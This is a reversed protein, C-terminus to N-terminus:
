NQVMSQSDFSQGTEYDILTIRLRSPMIDVVAFSARYGRDEPQKLHGPNLRIVGNEEKVIEPHHTHGHCFVKCQKEQLVTEPDRDDPLDNFHAEPTHTLFFRWGEFEEFRRNEILTNEYEVTWTGPIRILPYGAAIIADGDQYDDGLHITLDMPNKSLYDVIGQITSPNGHTDSLILLKM